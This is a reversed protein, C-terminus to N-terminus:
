VIGTQKYRNYDALSMNPQSCDRSTVWERPTIRRGMQEYVSFHLHGFDDLGHIDAKCWFKKDNNMRPSELVLIDKGYPKGNQDVTSWVRGQPDEIRVIKGTKPDHHYTSISSAEYEGRENFRGQM